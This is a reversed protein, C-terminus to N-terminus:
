FDFELYVSHSLQDLCVLFAADSRALQWRKVLYLCPM